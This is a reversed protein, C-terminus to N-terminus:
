DNFGGKEIIYEILLNAQLADKVSHLIYEGTDLNFMSILIRGHMQSPKVLWEGVRVCDMSILKQKAM